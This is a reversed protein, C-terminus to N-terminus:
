TSKENHSEENIRIKWLALECITTAEKLERIENEIHYLNDQIQAIISNNCEYRNFMTTSIMDRAHDRLIGIGIAELRSSLCCTVLYRM